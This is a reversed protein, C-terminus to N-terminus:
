RRKTVAFRVCLLALSAVILLLALLFSGGIFVILHYLVETFGYERVAAALFAFVLLFPSIGMFSKM